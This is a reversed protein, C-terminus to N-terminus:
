TWTFPCMDKLNTEMIPVIWFSFLTSLNKLLGM